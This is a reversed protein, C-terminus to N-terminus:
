SSPTSHNNELPSHSACTDSKYLNHRPGAQRNLQLRRRWRTANFSVTRGLRPTATRTRSYSSHRLSYGADRSYRKFQPITDGLYNLNPLTCIQNKAPPLILADTRCNLAGVRSRYSDAWLLRPRNRESGTSFTAIWKPVEIIEALPHGGHHSCRHEWSYGGVTKSNQKRTTRVPFRSLKSRTLHSAKGQLM